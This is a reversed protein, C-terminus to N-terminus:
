ANNQLYLNIFNITKKSLNRRKKTKIEEFINSFPIKEKSINRLQEMNGHSLLREAIATDSLTEINKVDWFISPSLLAQQRLIQSYKEM